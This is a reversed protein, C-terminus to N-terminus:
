LGIELTHLILKLFTFVVVSKGQKGGKESLEMRLNVGNCIHCKWLDLFDM